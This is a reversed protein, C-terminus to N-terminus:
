YKEIDSVFEFEKMQDEISDFDIDESAIIELYPGFEMDDEFGDAIETNNGFYKEKHEESSHQIVEEIKDNGSLAEILEDIQQSSVDENLYVEVVVTQKNEAKEDYQEITYRQSKENKRDVFNIVQIVCIIIACIMIIIAVLLLGGRKKM